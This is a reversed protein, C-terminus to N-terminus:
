FDIVIDKLVDQNARKLQENFEDRMKIIERIAEEGVVKALKENYEKRLKNLVKDDFETLRYTYDKGKQQQMNQHFDELRGLADQEFEERMVQYQELQQSSLGLKTFKSQIAQRWLKDVRVFEEEAADLDSDIGVKVGAPLQTQDPQISTDQVGGPGNGVNKQTIAKKVQPIKKELVESREESIEPPAQNQSRMYLTLILGSVFVLAMVHKISM